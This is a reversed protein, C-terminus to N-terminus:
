ASDLTVERHSGPPVDHIRHPLPKSHLWLSVAFLALLLYVEEPLPLDPTMPAVIGEVYALGFAALVTGRVDALGGMMVLRDDISMLSPSFRLKIPEKGDNLGPRLREM